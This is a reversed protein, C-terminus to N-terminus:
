KKIFAKISFDSRITDDDSNQISLKEIKIFYQGSEIEKIFNLSGLFDGKCSLQFLMTEQDPQSLSIKTSIKHTEATAELFKIFDVPDSPNVFMKDVLEFGQEYKSYNAKFKETEIIQAKLSATENKASIISQSDNKIGDFLWVCISVLGLILLTLFLYLVQNKKNNIKM